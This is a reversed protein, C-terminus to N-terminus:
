TGYTRGDVHNAGFRLDYGEGGGCGEIYHICRSLSYLSYLHSTSINSRSTTALDARNPLGSGQARSSSVLRSSM